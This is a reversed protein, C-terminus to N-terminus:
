WRRRSALAKLLAAREQGVWFRARARALVVVVSGVPAPNAATIVSFGSTLILGPGAGSANAAFIAPANAVVDLLVAETKIGNYEYQVSTQQRGAVEFPVVASVQGALSYILPAPVGDFLVRTGSLNSAVLGDADLAASVM